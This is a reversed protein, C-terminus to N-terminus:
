TMNSGIIRRVTRRVGEFLIYQRCVSYRLKISLRRLIQVVEFILKSEAYNGGFCGLVQVRPSCVKRYGKYLVIDAFIGVM